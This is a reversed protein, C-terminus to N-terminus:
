PPAPPRPAPPPRRQTTAPPHEREGGGPRDGRDASPADDRGRDHDSRPRFPQRSHEPAEEAHVAGIGARPLAAGGDVPAATGSRNPYAAAVPSLPCFSQRDLADM